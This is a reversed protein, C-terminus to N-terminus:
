EHAYMIIHSVPDQNLAPQSERSLMIRSSGSACHWKETTDGRDSTSAATILTNQRSLYARRLNANELGLELVCDRRELARRGDYSNRM